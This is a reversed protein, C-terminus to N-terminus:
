PQWTTLELVGLKTVRGTIMKSCGRPGLGTPGNPRASFGWENPPLARVKANLGAAQIALGLGVCPIYLGTMLLVRLAIGRRM